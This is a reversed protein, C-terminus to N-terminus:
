IWTQINEPVKLLVLLVLLVWLLMALLISKDKFIMEPEGGMSKSFVDNMYRFIGYMVPPITIMMFEHGSLFTYLSYSVLLASTSINLYSDLVSVSYQRLTPRHKGSAADLLLLEHRRKAFALFLAMLFTCLFLWPSVVVSIVVCGAVARLVLGLSITFVDVLFLNKLFLNYALTIVLYSAAILAFRYGLYISIFTAIFLLLFSFYLAINKDLRGSAVPRHCKVPHRRDEAVDLVDNILYLSGSLLCFAGFGILSDLWLDVYFFNMSFILGVFLLSNKYWQRPRM